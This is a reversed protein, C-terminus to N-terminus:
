ARGKNILEQEEENQLQEDIKAGRSPENGHARAADTPKANAAEKERKEEEKDAKEKAALTNAISREDKTDQVNHSNEKGEEFRPASPQESAPANRQDGDGAHAEYRPRAHFRRPPPDFQLNPQPAPGLPPHPEHNNLASPFFAPLITLM